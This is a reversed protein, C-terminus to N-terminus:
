AADAPRLAGDPSRAWRGRELDDAFRTLWAEWSPAVVERRRKGKQFWVIQGRRGGPAPDLDLCLFNGAGDYLVPIWRPNWYRKRVAGATEIAPDARDLVVQTQRLESWVQTSIELSLLWWSGFVPPADKDQGDHVAFSARAEAPLTLATTQEFTRWGESAVPGHLAGLLEPAEGALWAEIRNWAQM